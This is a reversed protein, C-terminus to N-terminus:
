NEGGLLQTVRAGSTATLYGTLADIIQKQEAISYGDTPVDAVMYVSMSRSVNVNSVFPDPATKRHDIRITRRTRKGYQHTVKLQVTGDDKSFSGENVGSSIRPLSNAVANITISQPDAFSM